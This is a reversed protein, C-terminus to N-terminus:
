LTLKGPQPSAPLHNRAYRDRLDPVNDELNVAHDYVSLTSEGGGLLAARRAEDREFAVVEEAVQRMTSHSTKKSAVRDFVVNLISSIGGKNNFMVLDSYMSGDIDSVPHILEALHDLLQEDGMRGFYKEGGFFDHFALRLSKVNM